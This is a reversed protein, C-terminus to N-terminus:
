GRPREALILPSPGPSDITRANEFGADRMWSAIENFSYTDGTDTALLM